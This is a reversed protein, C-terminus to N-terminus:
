NFYIFLLQLDLMMIKNNRFAPFKSFYENRKFNFLGTWLHIVIELGDAVHFCFMFLIELWFDWAIGKEM